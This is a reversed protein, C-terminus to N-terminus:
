PRMGGNAATRVLGDNEASTPATLRAISPDQIPQLAILKHELKRQLEARSSLASIKAVLVENSARIELIQREVKRTQEGLYHQQNKVYVFVLGCAAFAFALLVWRVLSGINLHNVQSYRHNAISNM